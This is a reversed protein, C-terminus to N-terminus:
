ASSGMLRSEAIELYIIAAGDSHLRHRIYRASILVEGLKFATNFEAFVFTRTYLPYWITGNYSYECYYYLVSGVGVNNNVGVVWTITNNWYTTNYDIQIIADPVSADISECKVMLATSLNSDIMNSATGYLTKVQTAGVSTTVTQQYSRDYVVYVPFNNIKASV